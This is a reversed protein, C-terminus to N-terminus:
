RKGALRRLRAEGIVCAAVQPRGEMARRIAEKLAPTPSTRAVPYRPFESLGGGASVGRGAGPRDASALVAITMCVSLVSRRDLSELDFSVEDEPM